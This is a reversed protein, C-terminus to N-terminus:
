DEEEKGVPENWTSITGIKSSPALTIYLPKEHRLINM